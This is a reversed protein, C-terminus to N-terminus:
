YVSHWVVVRDRCRPVAPSGNCRSMQTADLSCASRFRFETKWELKVRLRELCTQRHDSGIKLLKGRVMTDM